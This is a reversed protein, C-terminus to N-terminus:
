KELHNWFKKDTTQRIIAEHYKDIDFNYECEDICCCPKMDYIYKYQNRNTHKM